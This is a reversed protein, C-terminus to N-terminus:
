FFASSVSPCLSCLESNTDDGFLIYRARSLARLPSIILLNLLCTEWGLVEWGLVEWGLVSGPPCLVGWHLMMRLTSGQLSFASASSFDTKPFM